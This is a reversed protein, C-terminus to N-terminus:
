DGKNLGFASRLKDPEAESLGDTENLAKADYKIGKPPKAKPPEYIGKIKAVHEELAEDDSVDLVEAFGEPLHSDRLLEVAKIRRERMILSAEQRALRDKVIRDVDSQTFTREGAAGPESELRNDKDV